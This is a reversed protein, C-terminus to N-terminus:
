RARSRFCSRGTTSLTQAGLEGGDEPDLPEAALNAEGRLELVRVDQCKDVQPSNVM